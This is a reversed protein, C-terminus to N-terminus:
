AMRGNKATALPPPIGMTGGEWPGLNVLMLYDKHYESPSLQMANPVCLVNHAIGCNEYNNRLM